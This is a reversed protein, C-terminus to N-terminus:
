VKNQILRLAIREASAGHRGCQSDGAVMMAFKDIAEASRSGGRVLAVRIARIRFFRLFLAWPRLATDHCLMLKLNALSHRECTVCVADRDAAVIHYGLLQGSRSPSHSYRILLV